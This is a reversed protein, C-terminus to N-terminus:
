SLTCVLIDKNFVSGIYLKDEFVAGVTAASFSGDVSVYVNEFDGNSPNIRMVQSPAPYDANAAHKLYEFIRPHGGTWLFGDVDFELNDPGTPLSHLARRKLSGTEINRDYVGMKRGVAEAVYVSKGDDSINIGNAFGLFKSVTKAENGDFYVVNSLQLLLSTEIQQPLGGGFGHDNTFYFTRPGTAAIDNPSIMKDFTITELHQLSADKQVSFIEVTHGGSLPHNIVFLRKDNGSLLFIGHPQFDSPGDTNIKRLNQEGDLSLAYIGGQPPTGKLRARRDAASIFATKTTHDITIDEAGPFVALKSCSNPTVPDVSVLAGSIHVAQYIVYAAIAM